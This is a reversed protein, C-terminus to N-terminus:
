INDNPSEPLEYNNPLKSQVQLLLSKLDTPSITSISLHNLSLMNLELKLNELYFIANQVTLKIEDFIMKFQLYTHVFQELRKFKQELSTKLQQIKRDIKQVCIILDMISRRNESVQLRTMNLVSLSMDLDHIIQEQNEALIDINRNINELDNESITGFLTSMLQGVFPLVSRRNRKLNKSLVRYEEFSAYISKHTDILLGVEMQLSKFTEAYEMLNSKSYDHKISQLIENTNKIDSKIKEIFSQYPKLDHVFTVYWQANNTYIENKKQFIVNESILLGNSSGILWSILCILCYIFKMQFVTFLM